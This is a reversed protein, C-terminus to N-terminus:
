EYNAAGAPETEYGPEAQQRPLMAMISSALSLGNMIQSLLGPYDIGPRERAPRDDIRDEIEEAVSKKRFVGFHGAAFGAGAAAALALPSSLKERLSRQLAEAHLTTLSRRARLRSEIQHIEHDLSGFARWHGGNDNGDVNGNRGSCHDHDRHAGGAPAHQDHESM